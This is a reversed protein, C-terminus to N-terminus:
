HFIGNENKEIGQIQITKLKKEEQYQLDSPEYREFFPLDALIEPYMFPSLEFSITTVM